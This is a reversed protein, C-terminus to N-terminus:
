EMEGRHLVEHLVKGLSRAEFPKPMIGKFGYEKFNALVPDDSYGSSVVAKVGPDIELLRKVTDKGGMGGPVTLDLIVADYSKGSEVAAKYMDIAESGDKAFESEYGLKDLMRGVIKRLSAEDDMVLIRGRGEILRTEAKESVEKESAPLYIHFTTGVGLQSEVTIHGNHKKIISYTTALGLGSGKQKTTFYPDFINLLHRPAIGLGQDTISIRIYRGPRVPLGHKDAIEMNEAALYLCVMRVRHKVRYYAIGKLFAEDGDNQLDKLYIDAGQAMEAIKNRVYKEQIKRPILFTSPQMDYLGISKLIKTIPREIREIGLHDCVMHSDKLTEPSSDREPMIIGVVNKKGIAHVTLAGVVSSDIGGSIGITAGRYGHNEIMSAIFSVIEDKM